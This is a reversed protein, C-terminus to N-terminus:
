RIELIELDYVLSGAPMAKSQPHEGYALMAPVWLRVKEGPVMAALAEQWGPLAMGFQILRPHDALITSEFLTGDSTWGTYDLMLWSTESPHIEGSGPKLIQMVVGSRLKQAEHPPRALDAPTPPASFIRVLDLDITLDTREIESHAFHKEAHHAVGASALEEPVWVRRKEGAVMLRLAASVGPMAPRMCQIIPEDPSASGSFLTGDRRWAHFIMAVCDNDGPHDTGTGKRLIETALGPRIWV